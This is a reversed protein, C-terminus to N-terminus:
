KWDLTMTGAGGAPVEIWDSSSVVEGDRDLVGRYAGAPLRLFRMSVRDVTIRRQVVVAGGRPNALELTLNGRITREDAAVVVLDLSGMRLNIDRQQRAPSAEVRLREFTPATLQGSSYLVDYDGPSLEVEFNGASDRPVALAEEGNTSRLLAATGSPATGGNVLLRGALKVRTSFDIDLQQRQGATLTVTRTMVNPTDDQNFVVQWSGAAPLALEYQGDRATQSPGAPTGTADMIFLTARRVPEGDPGRLAGYLTPRSEVVLEVPQTDKTLTVSAVPSGVGRSEAKLQYTGTPLPGITFRGAGDATALYGRANPGAPGEQLNAPPNLLEITAGPVPAKDAGQVVTGVLRLEDGVRVTVVRPSAGGAKLEFDEAGSRGAAGGSTLEVVEARYLGVPQPGAKYTAGGSVTSERILQGNGGPADDRFQLLRVRYSNLPLGAPDVGAIELTTRPQLRFIVEKDYISVNRRVEETYGEATATVQDLAQNYPIGMLKFRGEADSSATVERLNTFITAGAIPKDTAADVVLGEVYDGPEVVLHLDTLEAGAELQVELPTPPGFGAANSFEPILSIAGPAVNDIKWTGDGRTMGKETFLLSDKYRDPGSRQVAVVVEGLPNGESDKLDGSLTGYPQLLVRAPQNVEATRLRLEGIGRQTAAELRVDIGSPVDIFFRGENNTTTSTFHRSGRVFVPTDTAPTTGDPEIVVGELKGGPGLAVDIGTRTEGPRVAMFSLTEQEVRVNDPQKDNPLPFFGDAWKVPVRVEYGAADAPVFATFAFAGDAGVELKYARERALVEDILRYLVVGGVARGSEAEVFRGELRAPAPLQIEIEKTEDVRIALDLDVRCGPGLSEPVDLEATVSYEGAVLGDFRFAGSSDTATSRVLPAPLPTRTTVSRVSVKVGRAATKEWDLVRGRLAADARTLKIQLDERGVDVPESLFDVFGEARVPLRLKKGAELGTLRFAGDKDTRTHSTAVTSEGPAGPKRVEGVIMDGVVADPVPAGAENVVTGALVGGQKLLFTSRLRDGIGEGEPFLLMQSAYGELTARWALVEGRGVPRENFRFAGTADSTTEDVIPPYGESVQFNGDTFLLATITANPLGDFTTADLVRGTFRPVRFEAMPDAPPIPTPNPAEGPGREIMVEVPTPVPSPTPDPLPSPTPTPRPAEAIERIPAPPPQPAPARLFLFAGVLIVAGILSGIALHKSSM